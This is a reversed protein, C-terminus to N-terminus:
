VQGICKPASYSAAERQTDAAAKYFLITPQPPPPLPSPRKRFAPRFAMIPFYVHFCTEFQIFVSKKSTSQGCIIVAKMNQELKSFTITKIKAVLWAHM